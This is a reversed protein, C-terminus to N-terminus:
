YSPRDHRYDNRLYRNRSDSRGHYDPHGSRRPPSRSHGYERGGVYNSSRHSRASMPPPQYSAPSPERRYWGPSKSRGRSPAYHREQDRRRRDRSNARRRPHYPAYRRSTDQGRYKGPTPSHPRSTFSYDVRVRRDHVVTDNLSDRARQADSVNAMNVFAYGRSHGM